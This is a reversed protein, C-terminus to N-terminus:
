RSSKSEHEGRTVMTAELAKPTDELNAPAVNTHRNPPYETVRIRFVFSQRIRYAAIIFVLLTGSTVTLALGSGRFGVSYALAVLVISALAAVFPGVTIAEFQIRAGCRQCLVTDTLRPTAVYFKSHCALCDIRHTSM